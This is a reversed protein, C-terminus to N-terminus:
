LVAELPVASMTMCQARLRRLLPCHYTYDITTIFPHELSGRMITIMRKYQGTKRGRTQTLRIPEERYIVSFYALPAM